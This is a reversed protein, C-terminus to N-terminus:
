DVTVNGQSSSLFAELADPEEEAPVADKPGDEPAKGVRVAVRVPGGLIMLLAKKSM